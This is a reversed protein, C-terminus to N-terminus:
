HHKTSRATSIRMPGVSDLDLQEEKSPGNQGVSEFLAEIEALRAKSTRSQVGVTEFMRGFNGTLRSALDPDKVLM